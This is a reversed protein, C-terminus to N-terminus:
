PKSELIVSAPSLSDDDTLLGSNSLATITDALRELLLDLQGLSTTAALFAAM